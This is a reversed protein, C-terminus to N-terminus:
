TSVRGDAEVNEPSVSRHEARPEGSRVTEWRSAVLVSGMEVFYPYPTDLYNSHLVELGGAPTIHDTFRGSTPMFGLEFDYTGPYLPPVVFTAAVTTLGDAPALPTPSFYSGVAFIRTGRADSFGIYIMPTRMPTSADIDVEIRLRQLAVARSTPQGSEDLVRAAVIIPAFSGNRASTSRLDYVGGLEASSPILYKEVVAPSEGDAVIRGKELLIARKCLTTIAGMNHSVFLVTRGEGASVERMKGLCKKQFEADGVALVEDVILIEPQLHAAVAFALRVYMGSSYRKVPTDLFKEIEAFAVIEDFRLDIEAKKM